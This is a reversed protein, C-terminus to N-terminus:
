KKKMFKLGIKILGKLLKRLLYNLGLKGSAIKMIYSLVILNFIAEEPIDKKFIAKIENKNKTLLYNQFFSTSKAFDHSLGILFSIESFFDNYEFFLSNFSEKSFNAVNELHDELKKDPHSYLNSYSLRTM